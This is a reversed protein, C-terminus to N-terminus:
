NPHRSAELLQEASLLRLMRVPNHATRRWMQYDLRRFLERANRNWTWRLDQALEGLRAIREPLAVGTFHNPEISM